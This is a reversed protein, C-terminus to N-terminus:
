FINNYLILLSVVSYYKTKVACGAIEPIGQPGRPDVVLYQLSKVMKTLRILFLTNLHSVHTCTSCLEGVLGDGAAEMMM